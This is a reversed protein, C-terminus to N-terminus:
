VEDREADGRQAHGQTRGITDSRKRRKQEESHTGARDSASNSDSEIEDAEHRSQHDKQRSM